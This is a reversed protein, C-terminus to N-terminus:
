VSIAVGRARAGADDFRQRSPYLIPRRHFKFDRVPRWARAACGAMIGFLFVTSPAHLPFGFLSTVLVALLGLRERRRAGFLVLGCIICLVIAAPMGLEFAFELLDNHAHAPQYLQNMRVEFAPYVSYFSGIGHGWFTLGDLTDCWLMLRQNLTDSQLWRPSVFFLAASILPVAAVARWRWREWAMAICCVGIALLASRCQSLVLASFLAAVLWWNRGCALVVIAAVTIEGLISSNVFLGASYGGLDTIPHYGLAQVIALFSSVCLGYGLGRYFPGLDDLSHGVLFAGAMVAMQMLEAAGDYRVPAWILSAVSWLLVACGLWHIPTSKIRVFWLSIPVAVFLLAWRSAEAAGSQGPWFCIALLLGLLFM